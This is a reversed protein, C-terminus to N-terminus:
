NHIGIAITVGRLKDSGCAHAKKAICNGCNGPCAFRKAHGMEKLRQLVEKRYDKSGANDKDQYAKNAIHKRAVPVAVFEGRTCSLGLVKEKIKEGYRSGSSVNLLYNAPFEYGQKELDLFLQWSKSYGYVDNGCAHASNENVNPRLKILDMWFRLITLNAFDGDVYLRLTRNEPIRLFESKVLSRGASSRLLVSNQLQRFFAAPYRWAKFSYCWGKGFNEVNRRVNEGYLCSGAGPCDFGPLSSFAFFPLKVNGKAAFIAFPLSDNRNEFWRLFITAFYKTTGREEESGPILAILKSLTVIDNALAASALDIKGPTSLKPLDIVKM